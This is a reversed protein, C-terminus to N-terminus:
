GHFMLEANAIAEAVGGKIPKDPGESYHQRYYWGDGEKFLLSMGSREANDTIIWTKSMKLEPLKNYAQDRYGYEDTYEYWDRDTYEVTAHVYVPKYPPPSYPRGREEAVMQDRDYASQAAAIAVEVVEDPAGAPKWNASPQNYLHSDDMPTVRVTIYGKLHEPIQVAAQRYLHGAHRIIKRLM